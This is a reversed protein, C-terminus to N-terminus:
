TAKSKRGIAAEIEDGHEALYRDVDADELGLDRLV